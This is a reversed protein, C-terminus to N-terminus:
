DTPIIRGLIHCVELGGVLFRDYKPSWQWRWWCSLEVWGWVDRPLTTVPKHNIKSAPWFPPPEVTSQADVGFDKSEDSAPPALIMKFFSIITPNITTLAPEYHNIRITIQNTTSRGRQFIISLEDPPIITSGLNISLDDLWRGTVVLCNGMNGHGSQPSGM